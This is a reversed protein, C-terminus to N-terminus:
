KHVLLCRALIQIAVANSEKIPIYLIYGRTHIINRFYKKM